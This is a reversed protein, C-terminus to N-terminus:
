LRDQEVRCGSLRVVHAHLLCRGLGHGGRLFLSAGSLPTDQSQAGARDGFLFDHWSDDCPFIVALGEVPVDGVNIVNCLVGDLIL